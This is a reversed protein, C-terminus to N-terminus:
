GLTLINCFKSFNISEKRNFQTSPLNIDWMHCHLIGADDPEVDKTRQDDLVQAGCHIADTVITVCQNGVHGASDAMIESPLSQEVSPSCDKCVEPALICFYLENAPFYKTVLSSEDM